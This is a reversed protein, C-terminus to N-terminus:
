LNVIGAPLSGVIGYVNIASVYGGLRAYRIIFGNILPPGEWFWVKDKHLRSLASAYLCKWQRWRTGICKASYERRTISRARGINQRILVQQSIAGDWSLNTSCLKCCSRGQPIKGKISYQFKLGSYRAPIDYSHHWNRSLLQFQLRLFQGCNLSM